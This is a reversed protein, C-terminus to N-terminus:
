FLRLRLGVSVSLDNALRGGSEDVDTRFASGSEAHPVVPHPTGGGPGFSSAHNEVDLLLEAGRWWVTAGVGAQLAVGTSTDDGPAFRGWGGQAGQWEFSYRRVGAGLSVHPRVNGGAMLEFSRVLSAAATVTTANTHPQILPEPCGVNPPAYWGGVCDWTAAVRSTLSRIAAIRLSWPSDRRELQLSAGFAVKPDIRGLSLYNGDELRPGRGLANASGIAGVRPTFVLEWESQAAARANGFVLLLLVGWFCRRM